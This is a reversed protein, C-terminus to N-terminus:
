DDFFRRQWSDEVHLIAIDVIDSCKRADEMAMKANDMTLGRIFRWGEGTIFYAFAYGTSKGNSLKFKSKRGM